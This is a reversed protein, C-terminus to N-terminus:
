PIVYSKLQYISISSSKLGRESDEGKVGMFKEVDDEGEIEEIIEQGDAEYSLM